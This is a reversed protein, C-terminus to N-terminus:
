GNKMLRHLSDNIRKNLEQEEATQAKFKATLKDLSINIAGKTQNSVLNKVYRSPNLIYENKRMESIPAKQCFGKIDKYKSSGERWNNFTNVIQRVDEDSFERLRRNSLSGLQSADIFLSSLKKESMKKPDKRSIIWLCAPIQTNLFLKTPLNVICDVFGAEIIEKRISDTAGTNSSLSGNALVFGATGGVKLHYIFHQVWAFNANGPPPKGYVWRPDDRLTEGSWDSDNFPPNALIFDMKKDQHENKLFSGANNWKVQSADLGHIALNMRALKYTTQNSEQGFIAINKHNGKHSEVFSESMTFMGGSGCCPDYVRGKYPQVLEVLLKVISKPTYFQGGKQGEALAFRGLFYEYVRGLLDKSRWEDESIPANDILDFLGSLISSDINQKSYIRPLIGRLTENHEELQEMANDLHIGIEVSRSLKRLHGWRSEPPLWFLGKSIYEDPDEQEAFRHKGKHLAFKEHLKYFSQSIYNLFILGLVIHKYEAADINKRLKDAARFLEVELQSYSSLSENITINSGRLNSIILNYILSPSNTSIIILLICLLYIELDLVRGSASKM